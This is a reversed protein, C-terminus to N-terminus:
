KSQPETVKADVFPSTNLTRMASQTPEPTVNSTNRIKVHSTKAILQMVPYHFGKLPHAHKFVDFM